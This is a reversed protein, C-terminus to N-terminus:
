SRREIIEYADAIATWRAAMDRLLATDDDWGDGVQGSELAAVIAVLRDTCRILVRGVAESPVRSPRLVGVRDEVLDAYFDELTM